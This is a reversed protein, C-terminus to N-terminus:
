RQFLVLTSEARVSGHTAVINVEYRTGLLPEQNGSGDAQMRQTSLQHNVGTVIKVDVFAGPATRGQVVIAGSGVQANNAHSTVQLSVTSPVASMSAALTATLSMFLLTAAAHNRLHSKM